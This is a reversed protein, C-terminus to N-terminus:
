TRRFDAKFRGNSYTEKEQVNSITYNLSGALLTFALDPGLHDRLVATVCAALWLASNTCPGSDVSVGGYSVGFGDTQSTSPQYKWRAEMAAGEIIHSSADITTYYYGFYSSHAFQSTALWPRSTLGLDEDSFPPLLPVAGSMRAGGPHGPRIETPLSLKSAFSSIKWIEVTRAHNLLDTASSKLMTLVSLLTSYMTELAMLAATVANSKEGITRRKSANRTEHLATLLQKLERDRAEMQEKIVQLATELEAIQSQTRAHNIQNAEGNTEISSIIMTESAQVARITTRQREESESGLRQGELQILERTRTHEEQVVSRTTEHLQANESGYDLLLATFIDGQNLIADIIKQTREDSSQIYSQLDTDLNTLQQRLRVVIHLNLEDRFEAVRRELDEVQEKSWVSRIASRLSKWKTKSGKVKVKDLVALLQDTTSTVSNCLVLLAPDTIATASFVVENNLGRLHNTADQPSAHSELFGDGSQQIERSKSICRATVDVLQVVSAVCAVVAWAEM